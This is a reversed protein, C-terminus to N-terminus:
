RSVFPHRLTTQLQDFATCLAAFSSKKFM